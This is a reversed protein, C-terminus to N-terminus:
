EKIEENEDEKQQTEFYQTPELLNILNSLDAMLYLRSPTDQPVLDKFEWNGLNYCYESCTWSTPNPYGDHTFVVYCWACMLEGEKRVKKFNEYWNPNPKRM